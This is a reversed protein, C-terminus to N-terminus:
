FKFGQPLMRQFKKSLGRNGKLGKMMKNMREFNSVLERVDSLSLGAGQAVREQRSRNKMLDPKTRESPTMSLVAAEFQKLKQESKGVLEEPVDYMGLMQLIQKMPGMKKMSRLQSLFTGYDLKGEEMVRQMAEEDSIEQVKELLTPLDPFGVLRSVFKKADFSELADPKEGLTIFAIKARSAHVASLAGGGKGSGDMKTIIVGTIGVAKRFQDAQKGAVQGLDASVVLYTEQPEFISSLNKLESALDPDFASRGATDLILVDYKKELIRSEAAIEEASKGKEGYFGCHVQETIQQLQEIAAPRHIDCAIACVKLGKSQYFKALKAISTTKGSGFLGIMMIRQKKIPPEYSEGLIAVLEDYVIKVIHERLNLSQAKKEKFARDQIRKTLEFVLQVNVDNSILVRQLEKVLAQIAKEDVLTAGTIKALAKRVGAGLDM